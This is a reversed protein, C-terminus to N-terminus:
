FQINVGGSIIRGREAPLSKGPLLNWDTLWIEKDLVNEVSLYLDFKKLKDCRLLKNINYSGYFNLMSFSGPSVNIASYYKKDLDGQYVNFVSMSIGNDAKYSLGGKASFNPSPVVNNTDNQDKNSQYLMSATLYIEPIIYYRADMELGMFIVEGFNNYTPIAAPDSRDQIIINKQKSYFGNIGAQMKELKLNAGLDVTNVKEPVLDKSGKLAPHNVFMEHLFPARFAQSYLFKFNLIELPDAVLGVRPVVDLDVFEVKNAQIGAILKMKEIFRWDAQAYFGVSYRNTDVDYVKGEPLPEIRLESGESYNAVAGFVVNLNKLPSISNSLEWLLENTKRNPGPWSSVHLETGTYTFNFDIEWKEGVAQKWGANAFHRSWNVIGNAPFLHRFDAVGYFSEWKTFSYMLNLNKYNIGVYTGPGKDPLIVNQSYINGDMALAKWQLHWPRKEAYRMSALISLDGDKIGVHGAVSFADRGGSVNVGSGVDESNEITIINIVGSFANTGYLVSGPGRIVEIHDISNVPFSELVESILGGELVERIPRGNLLYLVHGSKSLVHDGRSTIMSRDTMYNAGMMLSPVRLLVDKLTSGGFRELEDRTVVSLVGPADSLKEKSKSATTVTIDLLEDLEMDFLDEANSDQVSDKEESYGLQPFILVSTLLLGIFCWHKKTIRSM